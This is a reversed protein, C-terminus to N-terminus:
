LAMFEKIRQVAVRGLKATLLVGPASGRSPSIERGPGPEIDEYGAEELADQFPQRKFSRWYPNNIKWATVHKEDIRYELYLTKNDLDIKLYDKFGSQSGTFKGSILEHLYELEKDIASKSREVFFAAEAEIKRSTEQLDPLELKM